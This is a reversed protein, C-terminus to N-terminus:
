MLLSYIAKPYFGKLKRVVNDVIILYTHRIKFIFVVGETSKDHLYVEKCPTMRSVHVSELMTDQKWFSGDDFASSSWYNRM